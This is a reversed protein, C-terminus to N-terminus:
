CVKNSAYVVNHPHHTFCINQVGYKKSHLTSGVTGTATNFMHISDNDCGMVLLDETRHFDISNIRGYMLGDSDQTCPTLILGIKNCREPCHFTVKFVRGKGMSKMIKDSNQVLTM